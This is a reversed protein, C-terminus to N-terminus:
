SRRRSRAVPDGLVAYLRTTGLPSPILLPKM